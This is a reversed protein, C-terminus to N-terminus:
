KWRFRDELVIYDICNRWDYLIEKHRNDLAPICEQLKDVVIDM